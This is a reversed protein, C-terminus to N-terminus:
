AEPIGPPKKISTAFFITFFLIHKIVIGNEAPIV